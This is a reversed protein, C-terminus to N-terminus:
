IDKWDIKVKISKRLDEKFAAFFADRTMEAYYRSYMNRDKDWQEKDPQKEDAYAFVYFKGDIEVPSPFVEGKSLAFLGASEQPIAGLGPIATSSRPLFGTDRTFRLGKNKIGDAAMVRAMMRAKEAAVRARIVKIAESKELPKGEERDVVQFIFSKGEDRIPLSIDGKGVGSLADQIKLKGFRSVVQSEKETGLDVVELGKAKGYAALDKSKLLDMYAQDDRVGSKEDIVMYRLHFTNESRYAGKEREYLDTLEKDDLTVKDKYQDPDFVAMSLKVQGRERLYGEYAAKEDIGGAGNDQIISMMRGIVMSQRQSEEFTKPDLNNRRLVELYLQRDFRGNRNFIGMGTLNETFERDSVAIGMERAKNLLLYKDVLSNMVTEKLKLRNEDFKDKYLKRYSNVAKDYADRYEMVTIRHSGVEALTRDAQGKSNFGFTFVFVVSIIVVLFGLVWKSGHKRM